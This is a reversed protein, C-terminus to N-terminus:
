KEIEKKDWRYYLRDKQVNIANGNFRKHQKYMESM